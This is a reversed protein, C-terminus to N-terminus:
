GRLGCAHLPRRHRSSQIATELGEGFRHPALDELTEDGPGPAQAFEGVSKRDGPRRDGVMHPNQALSAEDADDIAPEFDDEDGQRGKAGIKVAEPELGRESVGPDGVAAGFVVVEAQLWARPRWGDMPVPRLRRLWRWEWPLRTLAGCGRNKM